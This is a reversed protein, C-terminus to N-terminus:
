RHWNHVVPRYSADQSGGFGQAEHTRGAGNRWLQDDQAPLAVLLSVVALSSLDRSGGLPTNARGAPKRRFTVSFVRRLGM